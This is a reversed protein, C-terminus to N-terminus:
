KSKKPQSSVRAGWALSLRVGSLAPDEAVVHRLRKLLAEADFRIKELKTQLQVRAAEDATAGLEAVLQEEQARNRALSELQNELRRAREPELSPIARRLANVLTREDVRQPAEARAEAHDAGLRAARSEAARRAQAEQRAREEAKTRAQAEQRAREEAKTRAQAEQRAREEAETRAQAEQRAREEAETRAQAEQRAREEAETRAQAEQRAREEAAARLRAEAERAAAERWAWWAALAASAVLALAAIFAIIDM